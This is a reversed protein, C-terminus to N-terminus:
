SAPRNSREAAKVEDWLRDLQELPSDAINVGYRRALSEVSRFRREFKRTAASLAVEADVGLKRTLNV